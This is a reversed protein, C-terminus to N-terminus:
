EEARFCRCGGNSRAGGRRMGRSGNMVCVCGGLVLNRVVLILGRRTRRSILTSMPKAISVSLGSEGNGVKAMRFSRRSLWESWPRSMDAISRWSSWTCGVGLVGRSWNTCALLGGVLVGDCRGVGTEGSIFESEKEAEAGERGAAVGFFKRETKSHM